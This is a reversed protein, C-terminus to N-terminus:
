PTKEVGLPIIFIVLGIMILLVGGISALSPNNTLIFYMGGIIFLVGLAHVLVKVFINKCANRIKDIFTIELWTIFGRIGFFRGGFAM